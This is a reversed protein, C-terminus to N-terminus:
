GGSKSVMRYLAFEQTAGFRKSVPDREMDSPLSWPKFGAKVMAKEIQEMRQNKQTISKGHWDVDIHDRRAIPRNGAYDTYVGAVVTFSIYEDPMKDTVLDEAVAVIEGQFELDLIEQVIERIDRM